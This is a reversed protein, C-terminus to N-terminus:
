CASVHVLFSMHQVARKRNRKGSHQTVFGQPMLPDSVLFGLFYFSIATLAFGTSLEANNCFFFVLVWLTTWLLAKFIGIPLVSHPPAPSPVLLANSQLSFM